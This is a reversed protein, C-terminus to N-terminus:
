HNEVKRIDKKRNEWDRWTRDPTEATVDRGVWKLFAEVAVSPYQRGTKLSASDYQVTFQGVYVIMRDNCFGDLSRRPRKASYIRGRVLDDKTM